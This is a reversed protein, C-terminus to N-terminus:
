LRWIEKCDANYLASCKLFMQLHLDYLCKSPIQHHFKYFLNVYAILLLGGFAYHDSFIFDKESHTPLSQM